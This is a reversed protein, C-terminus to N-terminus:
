DIIYKEEINNERLYELIYYGIDYETNKYVQLECQEYIMREACQILINNNSEYLDEFTSIEIYTENASYYRIHNMEHVLTQVLTNSTIRSDIQIVKRIIYARGFVDLERFEIRCYVGTLEQTLRIAEERSIAPVPIYRIDVPNIEVPREKHRYLVALNILLVIDTISIAIIFAILTRNLIARSKETM